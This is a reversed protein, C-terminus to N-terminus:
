VPKCTEEKRGLRKAAYREACPLCRCEGNRYRMHPRFFAEEENTMNIPFGCDACIFYEAFAPELVSDSIKTETKQSASSKGLKKRLRRERGAQRQCEKCHYSHGDKSKPDAYFEKLPKEEGCKTCKKSTPNVTTQELEM